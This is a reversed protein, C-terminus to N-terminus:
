GLIDCYLLYVLVFEDPDVVWWRGHPHPSKSPDKGYFERPSEGYMWGYLYCQSILRYEKVDGVETKRLICPTKSGYLIAISDGAKVGRVAMCLQLQETFFVAKSEAVLVLAEVFEYEAVLGAEEEDIQVQFSRRLERVRDSEKQGFCRIYQHLNRLRQQSALAGDALLTRVLDRELNSRKIDLYAGLRPRVADSTLYRNASQKIMASGPAPRPGRPWFAFHESM